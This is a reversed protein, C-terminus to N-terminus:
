ARQTVEFRINRSVLPFTDTHMGSPSATLHPHLGLLHHFHLMDCGVALCAGSWQAGRVRVRSAQMVTCPFGEFSWTPLNWHWRSESIVLNRLLKRLVTGAWCAGCKQTLRASRHHRTELCKCSIQVWSARGLRAHDLLIAFQGQYYHCLCAFKAFFHNVLAAV